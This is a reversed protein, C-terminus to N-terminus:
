KERRLSDKPIYPKLVKALATDLMGLALPDIEKRPDVCVTLELTPEEPHGPFQLKFTVLQIQGATTNFQM